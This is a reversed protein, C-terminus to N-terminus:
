TGVGVMHAEFSNLFYHALRQSANGSPSSHKRIQKRLENTTKNDNSTTTTTLKENGIWIPRKMLYKMLIMGCLIMLTRIAM